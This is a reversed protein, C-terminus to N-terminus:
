LYVGGRRFQDRTFKVIDYVEYFRLRKNIVSVYQRGEDNLSEEPVGCYVDRIKVGYKSFCITVNLLINAGLVACCIKENKQVGSPM